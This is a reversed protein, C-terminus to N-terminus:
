RSMEQEAEDQSRCAPCSGHRNLFNNCERCRIQPECEPNEIITVTQKTGDFGLAPRPNDGYDVALYEIEVQGLEMSAEIPIGVSLKGDEFDITGEMDREFTKGSPLTYRTRVKVKM